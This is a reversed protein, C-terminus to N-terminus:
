QAEQETRLIARARKVSLALIKKAQMLKEGCAHPCGGSHWDRCRSKPSAHHRDPAFDESIIEQMAAEMEVSADELARLRQESRRLQERLLTTSGVSLGVRKKGGDDNAPILEPLLPLQQEEM